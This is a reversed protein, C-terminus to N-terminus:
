LLMVLLLLLKLKGVALRQLRHHETADDADVDAGAAAAVEADVGAGGSDEERRQLGASAPQGVDGCM